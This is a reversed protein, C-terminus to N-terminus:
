SDRAICMSFKAGKINAPRTNMMNIPKGTAKESAASPSNEPKTAMSIPQNGALKMALRGSLTNPMRDFSVSSAMGKKVSIPAM